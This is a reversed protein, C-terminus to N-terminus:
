NIAFPALQLDDAMATQLSAIVEAADNGQMFLTDFHAQAVGSFHPVDSEPVGLLVALVTLYEGNGQATETTLQDMNQAVFIERVEEVRVEQTPDCGLIGGGTTMFFTRPVFGDAIVNIIAAAINAGKGSQGNMVQAGVGCGAGDDSAQAVSGMALFTAGGILATLKKM